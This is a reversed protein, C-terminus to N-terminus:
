RTARYSAKQRENQFRVNSYPNYPQAGTTYSAVLGERQINVNAVSDHLQTIHMNIETINDVISDVTGNVKLMNKIRDTNIWELTTVSTHLPTVKEPSLPPATPVLPTTPLAPATPFAPAPTLGSTQLPEHRISKLRRVDIKLDHIDQALM